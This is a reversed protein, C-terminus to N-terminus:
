ATSDRLDYIHGSPPVTQPSSYTYLVISNIRGPNAASAADIIDRGAPCNSCDQGSFDEVLVNHVQSPVTSVLYISDTSPTHTVDLPTDVEKCGAFLLVFCSLALAIKKM